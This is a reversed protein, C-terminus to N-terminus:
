TVNLHALLMESLEVSATEPVWHTVGKLVEFAYLGIVWDATLEAATRGLAADRDSWVYLTPVAVPLLDNLFSGDMARYWNLAATMAGPETMTRVYEEAIDGHLGSEALLALLGAGNGDPGLLLREPVEPERFADMYGRVQRGVRNGVPGLLVERLALPHPTSVVSLSRIREAHHSAVLWGLLGGWDHGVLDFNYSGLAGAIAMVDAMLFELAYDEMREPRADACYGRLDPAVARYGADGLATLEARWCASTQPFGHLLVVARGNEPGAARATFRFGNAHIELREIV